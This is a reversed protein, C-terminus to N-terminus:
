QVQVTAVIALEEASGIERGTQDSSVLLAAPEAQATCTDTGHFVDRHPWYRVVSPWALEPHGVRPGRAFTFPDVRHAM